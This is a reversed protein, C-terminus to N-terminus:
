CHPSPSRPWHPYYPPSCPEGMGDHFSWLECCPLPGGLNARGNERGEELDEALEANTGERGWLMLNRKWIGLEIGQELSDARKDLVSGETLPLPSFPSDKRAALVGGRHIENGGWAHGMESKKTVKPPTRSEEM